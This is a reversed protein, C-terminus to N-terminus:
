AATTGPMKLFDKKFKYTSAIKYADEAETVSAFCFGYKYDSYPYIACYNGSGKKTCETHTQCLNPNEEVKKKISPLPLCVGAGSYPETSFCYCGYDCFTFKDCYGVQCDGEVKKM